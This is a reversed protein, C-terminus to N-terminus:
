TFHFNKEESNLQIAWKATLSNFRPKIPHEQEPSDVRNARCLLASLLAGGPERTWTRRSYSEQRHFLLSFSSLSRRWAPFSPASGRLCAVRLM